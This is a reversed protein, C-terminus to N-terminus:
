SNTVSTTAGHIQVNRECLDGLKALIEDATKTWVFPHPATSNHADLGLNAPPFRAKHPVSASQESM